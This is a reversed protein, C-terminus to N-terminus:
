RGCRQQGPHERAEIKICQTVKGESPGSQSQRRWREQSVKVTVASKKEKLMNADPRRYPGVEDGQEKWSVDRAGLGIGCRVAICVSSRNMAVLPRPSGQVRLLNPPFLRLLLGNAGSGRM